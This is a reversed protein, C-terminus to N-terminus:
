RFTPPTPIEGDARVGDTMGRTVWGLLADRGGKLTTSGDGITFTEGEDTVLTVGPWADADQQAVEVSWELADELADIDAEELEWLTDLDFHHVLVENIRVAPTEYANIPGRLTAVQETALKGKLQQAAAGFAAAEERVKAKLEVPSLTAWEEIQADRAEKSAYMPTETGTVAWEVLNRLGKASAALHAAVHARTWGECRSPAALEDASLSEVTALMMGTERELRNLDAPMFAATKKM